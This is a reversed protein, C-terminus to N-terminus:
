SVSSPEVVGEGPWVRVSTEPLSPGMSGNQM